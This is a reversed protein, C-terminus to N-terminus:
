DPARHVMVRTMIIPVRGMLVMVLEPMAAAM